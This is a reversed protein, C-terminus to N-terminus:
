EASKEGGVYYKRIFEEKVNKLVSEPLISLM